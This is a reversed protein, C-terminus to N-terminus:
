ANLMIILCCDNSRGANVAAICEILASLAANLARAAESGRAASVCVAFPSGRFAAAVVIDVRMGAYVAAVGFRFSM